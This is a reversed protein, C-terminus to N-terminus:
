ESWLRVRTQARACVNSHSCYPDSLSTRGHLSHRHKRSSTDSADVGAVTSSRPRQLPLANKFSISLTSNDHTMQRADWRGQGTGDLAIETEGRQAPIPSHSTGPGTRATLICGSSFVPMQLVSFQSEHPVVGPLKQVKSDGTELVTSFCM